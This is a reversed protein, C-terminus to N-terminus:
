AHAEPTDAHVAGPTGAIGWRHAPVPSIVVWTNDRISEDFVDVVAQTLRDILASETGDSLRSEYISVQLYPM